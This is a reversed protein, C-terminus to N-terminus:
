LSVLLEVCFLMTAVIAISGVEVASGAAPMMWIGDDDVVGDDNGDTRVFNLVVNGEENRVNKDGDIGYCM